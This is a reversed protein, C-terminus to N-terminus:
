IDLVLLTSWEGAHERVEAEHYTVAKVDEGFGEVRVGELRATLNTDTLRGFTVKTYIERDAHARSLAENLFDVLLVTTDPADISIEAGAAGATLGHPDVVAMLGRLADAFLEERSAARVRIRIDATHEVLEYM